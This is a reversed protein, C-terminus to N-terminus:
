IGPPSVCAKGGQSASLHRKGLFPVAADSSCIPKRAWVPGSLGPKRSSLRFSLSTAAKGGSRHREPPGPGGSGRMKELGGPNPCAKRGLSTSLHRNEFRWRPSNSCRPNRTRVRALFGRNRAPIGSVALFPDVRGKEGGNQRDLVALVGCEEEVGPSQAAKRGLGPQFPGNRWFRDRPGVTPEPNEPGGLALFGRNRAPFGPVSLFPDARGKEHGNRPELLGSVRMRKMGGPNPCHKQGFQTFPPIFVEDSTPMGGRVIAGYHSKQGALPWFDGTKPQFAPFKFSRRTVATGSRKPVELLDRFGAYIWTVPRQSSGGVLWAPRDGLIPRPPTM